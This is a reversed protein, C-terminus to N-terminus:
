ICEQSACILYICTCVLRDLFFFLCFLFVAICSKCSSFTNYASLSVTLSKSQLHSVVLGQHVQGSNLRRRSIEVLYQASSDCEPSTGNLANLSDFALMQELSNVDLKGDHLTAPYCTGHHTFVLVLREFPLSRIYDARCCCLEGGTPTIAAVGEPMTIAAVGLSSPTASCYV